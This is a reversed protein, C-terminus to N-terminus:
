HGYLRSLNHSTFLPISVGMNIESHLGQFNGIATGTHHNEVSAIIHSPSRSAPIPTFRQSPLITPAPRLMSQQMAYIEEPSYHINESSYHTQQQNRVALIQAETLYTHDFTLPNPPYIQLHPSPEEIEEVSSPQNLYPFTQVFTPYLLDQRIASEFNTTPQELPSSQTQPWTSFQRDHENFPIATNLGASLSYDVIL